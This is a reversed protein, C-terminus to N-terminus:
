KQAMLFAYLAASDKAPMKAYVPMPKHVHGGDETIGTHILRVFKASTYQKTVGTARISPSFGKKGAYTAGHCSNCGNSEAISKGHAILATSSLVPKLVVKGPAAPSTHIAALTVCLGFALTLAGTSSMRM